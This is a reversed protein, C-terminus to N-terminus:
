TPSEDTLGRAVTDIQHAARSWSYHERVSVAAECCAQYLGDDALAEVITGALASPADGTVLRGGVGPRIIEPMACADRGICPLGRSLAEVFVIGFGEFRSPMVFLDHEDYLERVRQAAVHGLFTVGDAPPRRLPWRPPGAVTLTVHPGLERRVLDFAAVVQDGAKTDFDRGVFLLRRSAGQRRVPPPSSALPVNVGPNVVTVRSADIGSRVLHRAMWASMPLLAAASRYVADQRAHLQMLRRRGLTRFHPVGDPGLQDLLIGYSLDQLLMTPVDLVALDQVQLVVDPRTRRVGSRVQRQVLAQTTRNMRWQSSWRGDHRRAGAAKLALRVPTAVTTGVDVVDSVATMAERLRWPSGSWTTRPDAQWHCAFGIRPGPAADVGAEDSTVDTAETGEALRGVLDGARAM